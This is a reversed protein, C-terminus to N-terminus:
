DGMIRLGYILNAFDVLSASGRLGLRLTMPQAFFKDVQANTFGYGQILGQRSITGGICVRSESFRQTDRENPQLTRSSQYSAAFGTELVGGYPLGTNPDILTPDNLVASEVKLYPSLTIRGNAPVGTSNYLSYIVIPSLWHCLINHSSKAPLTMRGIDPIDFSTNAPAPNLTICHDDPGPAPDGPAPTCNTSMTISGSNILGDWVVNRGFTDADGVDAATPGAMTSASAIRSQSHRVSKPATSTRGESRAETRMLSKAASLNAKPTVAMATGAIGFAVLSTLIATRIM